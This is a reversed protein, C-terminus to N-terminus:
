EDTFNPKRKEVFATMGEVRDKFGFSAHFMRREYLLGSELGMEYSQNVAEKALQIVPQSYGAIKLAVRVAENVTENVETVRSVLGRMNAEEANMFEGTLVM